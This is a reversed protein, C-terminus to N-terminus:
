IFKFRDTNEVLWSIQCLCRGFSLLSQVFLSELLLSFLVPWVAGLSSMKLHIGNVPEDDNSTLLYVYGCVPSLDELIFSTPVTELTQQM